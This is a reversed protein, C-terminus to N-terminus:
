SSEWIANILKTIKAQAETKMQRLNNLIIMERDIKESIENQIILSINPVKIEMLNNIGLEVQKTSQAGLKKLIQIQGDESNLYYAIFKQNFYIGNLRLLLLHSDFLLGEYCKDIFVTRGVTRDM